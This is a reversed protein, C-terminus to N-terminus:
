AHMLEGIKFLGTRGIDLITQGTRGYRNKEIDFIRCGFTESKKNDDVYLHGHMDIAHKIQNQGSFTGDKTVQGIFIVNTYNSKAWDTLLETCRMATKSNTMGDPYKGDDLCQLSDQILFVQKTPNSKRLYDAHNLIDKVMIDQGCIFGNRSKLRETVMKVQFLSEEGTNYLCIHGSGTIADAAQLALTTKGAGPTGTLMMVTSPVFGTKEDSEGVAEDLLSLGTNFRLRMKEPVEMSKINTGRKLGKIGITLNMRAM